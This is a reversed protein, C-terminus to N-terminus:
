FFARDRTIEVGSAVAFRIAAPKNVAVNVTEMLGSECAIRAVNTALAELTGYSSQEIMDSIRKVVTAYEKFLADKVEYFTLDLVVPQKEVREHPNIGIVCAVRLSRVFAHLSQTQLADEKGSKDQKLQIGFGEGLILAQPLTVTVEVACDKHTDNGATESATKCLAEAFAKLDDFSKSYAALKHIAKSLTGYNVTNAVDDSKGAEAISTRIRCDISAPQPYNARHWQD